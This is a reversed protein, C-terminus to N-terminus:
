LEELNNLKSLIKLIESSSRLHNNSIDLFELNVLSSLVSISDDGIYNDNLRLEKLNICNFLGEISVLRNYSLNLCQLSPIQANLDTIFTLKNNILSLNIITKPLNSISTISNNDACLSEIESSIKPFLLLNQSSIDLSLNTKM